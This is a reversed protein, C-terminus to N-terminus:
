TGGLDAATVLAQGRKHSMGWLRLGVETHGFVGRAGAVVAALAVVAVVGAVVWRGPGRPRGGGPKAAVVTGAAPGDIPGGTSGTGKM